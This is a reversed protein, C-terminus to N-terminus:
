YKVIKKTIVGNETIFQIFYIGAPLYYVEGKGGGFSPFIHLVGLNRGFVDFIEASKIGREAKGSPKDLFEYNIIRLEGNTPNPYIVIDDVQNQTISLCTEPILKVETFYSICREDSENDSSERLFYIKENEVPPHNWFNGVHLPETDRINEYWYAVGQLDLDINFNINLCAKINEIEPPEPMEVTLFNNKQVSNAGYQNSVTLTVSYIGNDIYQYTPNQLNSTNGDGFNWEWEEPTNISEDTFTILGNCTTKASVTFNPVPTVCYKPMLKAEKFYSMCNNESKERIFYTVEKNIPSHVWTNGIHVPTQNNIKEYWYATGELELKIEFNSDNCADLLGIEPSAPMEVTILDEKLITNEGTENSVSLSVSYTGNEAYQHIPNRLDSTNGDGFDWFWEKPINTSQDTFLILGDCSTENNINFIPEPAPGFCRFFIKYGARAVGEDSKFHITIYEGTSSITGPNGVSNCYKKDNILPAETSDGDYFAIYDCNCTEGGEEINFSEIYLVIKLADQSHITLVSNSSNSYNANPGGSDYIYGNCAEMTVNGVVPMLYECVMDPDIFIYNEKIKTGSGCGGGDVFLSVPYYGYQTYTHVPSFETSTNGDGFDWLYSIGKKSLNIFELQTSTNCVLTSSTEFDIAFYNIFPENIVGIAYFADGISQTEASCSGFIEESVLIAYNYLTIFQSNPTLYETLVKFVLKSAKDIGIPEVHYSNGNDNVGSGGQCLLYFWYNIVSSNTHVGGDDNFGGQWYQGHYTNPLQFAKPNEMSRLTLGMKEGLTWDALEPVAYFEIATGFIDSFAEDLAGSEYSYILNATFSTLGHTIEHGCIDLTTLPTYGQSIDGDCFIMATGNWFANINNPYGQATLSYHTYARLLYGNGDISNRGHVNYFYDYTSMTAFHADPAYQDLQANVNNWINDLDTFHVAANLNTGNKCNLTMIGKGRTNDQLIYNSGDYFTNIQQIGSYQTHATGIADSFKILPLDFLVEGTQADVYVMKRNYPSKSFIDFKFATRLASPLLCFASPSESIFEPNSPAIVKTGVPYYTASKDDNIDKLHSEENKDQWMYLEAGFHNLAAQLATEESISFVPVFDKVNVLDGNLTTVRGNKVHVHWASFEVPYGDITQEYRYFQKGDKSVHSNKLNFGTKESLCFSKSYELAKEHSIVYNDRFSIYSPTSVPHAGDKRDNMIIEKANSKLEEIQEKRSIQCFLVQTTILLIPLLIKKM